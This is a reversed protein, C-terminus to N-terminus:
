RRSDANRFAVDSRTGTDVTGRPVNGRKSIFACRQILSYPIRRNVRSVDLKYGRLPAGPFVKRPSCERGRGSIRRVAFKDTRLYRASANKATRPGPNIVALTSLSGPPM